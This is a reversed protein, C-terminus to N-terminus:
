TLLGLERLAKVIQKLTYGDFTSADNVTTGSSEVFTAGSIGTTAKTVPTAGYFGVRGSASEVQIGRSTGASAIQLSGASTVTFSAYNTADYGVRLQETTALTHVKASPSSTGVGLSNSSMAMGSDTATNGFLLKGITNRYCVDNAVSNTFFQGNGAAVAAWISDGSGIYSPGTAPLEISGGNGSWQYKTRIRASSPGIDFVRGTSDFTVNANGTLASSSSWIALQNTAGSGTTVGSTAITVTDTTANTTLTINSGAALTLTDTPSDAVVNSQGAVAITQFINRAVNKWLSTSAEYALVQGDTPTTLLVDHLWELHDGLEIRVIIQGVNQHKRAVYGIQMLHNPQTPRTATLGGDVAPNLWLTDGVTFSDTDLQDDDTGFVTGETVVQGEEMNPIDEDVVGIPRTAQSYGVASAKAVRPRDGQAGSIYVVTGKTLTSGTANFAQIVTRRSEEVIGDGDPDYEARDMPEFTEWGDGDANVRISELEDPETSSLLEGVRQSM